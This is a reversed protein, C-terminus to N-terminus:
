TVVSHRRHNASRMMHCASGSKFYDIDNNKSLRNFEVTELYNRSSGGVSLVHVNFWILFSTITYFQQLLCLIDDKNANDQKCGSSCIKNEIINM